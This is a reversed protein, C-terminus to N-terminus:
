GAAPELRRARTLTAGVVGVFALLGAAPEPVAAAASVAPTAGLNRQWALFDSGVVVGDRDDDANIGAGQQAFQAKWIDLDAADVFGDGNFDGPTDTGDAYFQISGIQMSTITGPAPPITTAAPGKIEPFVVKYSSYATTNTFTVVDGATRRGSPLTLDGSAIQTWTEGMGDSHAVSAIPDNTGYIEYKSPDRGEADNATTIQLANVAEPGRSPTVIFGTNKIGFNLYKTASNGDFLRDVGQDVPVISESVAPTPHKVARVPDLGDPDFIDSGSGDTSEFFEMEGIQMATASNPVKLTPFIIKYLNYSNANAISVVPGTSRRTSPLALAGSSILQWTEAAGPSNDASLISPDNSGYLEYTAPDRPEADNATHIRFSQVQQTGFPDVILGTGFRGFNLYKTSSQPTTPLYLNDFAKSPGENNPVTPYVSGLTVIDEDIPIGPDGPTLVNIVAWASSGGTALCVGLLALLLRKM